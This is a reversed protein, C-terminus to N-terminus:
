EIRVFPYRNWRGRSFFLWTRSGNSVFAPDFDSTHPFDQRVEAPTWTKGQDSSYAGLIVQDVSAEFPGSFWAALLRGDALLTVSPAHNFGFRNARDYPDGSPHEYVTSRSLVSVTQASAAGLATLGWVLLIALPLRNAHIPRPSILGPGECYAKYGIRSM